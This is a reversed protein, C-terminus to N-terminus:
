DADRDGWEEPFRGHRPLDDNLILWANQHDTFCHMQPSITDPDDLSGAMLAIVNHAPRAFSVSSGCTPCFGRNVPDSSKYIKPSDQIWKVKQPAFGVFTLFSGGSIRQCSHCHCTCVAIPEGEAIYRIQGCLCGGTRAM